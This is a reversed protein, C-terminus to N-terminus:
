SRASKSQATRFSEALERFKELLMRLKGPDGGGRYKAGEVSFGYGDQETNEVLTYPVVLGELETGQLDITVQWGPNDLTDIRVGFGHEWDGDCQSAYGHQIWELIDGSM